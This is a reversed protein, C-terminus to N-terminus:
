NASQQNIARLLQPEWEKDWKEILYARRKKVDADNPHFGEQILERRNAMIGSYFASAEIDARSIDEGIQKAISYTSIIAEVDDLDRTNALEEPSWVIEDYISQYLDVAISCHEIEEIFHYGLLYLIGLNQSNRITYNLIGNDFLQEFFVFSSVCTKSEFVAVDLLAQKLFVNDKGSFGLDNRAGELMPEYKDKYIPYLFDYVRPHYREKFVVGKHLVKNLKRHQNAHHMEQTYYDKEARMVAPDTLLKLAASRVGTYFLEIFEVYFSYGLGLLSTARELSWAYNFGSENIVKEEMRFPVARITINEM